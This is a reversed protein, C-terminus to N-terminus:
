KTYKSVIREITGNSKFDQLRKRLYILYPQCVSYKSFAIYVNGGKQLTPMVILDASLNNANIAYNLQLKSGIVYKYRGDKVDSLAVFLVDSSAIHLYNNVFENTQDDLVLNAVKVGDLGVLSDWSSISSSLSVPVAITVPDNIYAPKVLEAHKALAANDYASVIIDIDGNLLNFLMQAPDTYVFEEVPVDLESFIKEVLEIGVGNVDISYTNDTTTVITYPPWQSDGAIVVKECQQLVNGYMSTTTFITAITFLVITLIRFAHM